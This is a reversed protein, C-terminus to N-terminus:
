LKESVGNPPYARGCGRLFFQRGVKIPANGYQFGFQRFM